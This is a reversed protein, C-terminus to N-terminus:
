IAPLMEIGQKGTLRGPLPGWGLAMCVQGGRLGSESIVRSNAVTVADLLDQLRNEMAVLHPDDVPVELHTGWGARHWTDTTQVQM